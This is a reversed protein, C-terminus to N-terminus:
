SEAPTAVTSPDCSSRRRAPPLSVLRSLRNALAGSDVSDSAVIVDTVSDGTVDRFYTGTAGLRDGASAGVVRRPKLGALELAHLLGAHAYFGFFGASLVLTFPEAELWDARTRTM